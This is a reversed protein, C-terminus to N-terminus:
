GRAVVSKKIAEITKSKYFTMYKSACLIYTAKEFQNRESVLMCKLKKGIKEHNSLEYIKASVLLGNHLHAM